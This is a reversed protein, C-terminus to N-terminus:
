KINKISNIRKNYNSKRQLILKKGTEVASRNIVPNLLRNFTPEKTPQSSTQELSKARELTYQALPYETTEVKYLDSKLFTVKLTKISKIGNKDYEVFVIDEDLLLNHEVSDITYNRINAQLSEKLLQDLHTSGGNYYIKEELKTLTDQNQKKFYRVIDDETPFFGDENRKGDYYFILTNPQHYLKRVEANTLYSLKYDSPTLAKSIFIAEDGDKVVYKEILCNSILLYPKNFEILQNVTEYKQFQSYQTHIPIDSYPFHHRREDLLYRNIYCNANNNHSHYAIGKDSLFTLNGQSCPLMIQICDDGVYYSKIRQAYEIPLNKM